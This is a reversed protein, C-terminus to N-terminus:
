GRSLPQCGLAILRRSVPDAVPVHTHALARRFRPDAAAKREIEDILEAGHARLVDELPGAGIDALLEDSDALDVLVGLLSWAEHPDGEGLHEVREWAWGHRQVELWSRAVRLQEEPTM